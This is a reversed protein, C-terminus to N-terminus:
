CKTIYFLLWKIMSMIKCTMLEFLAFSLNSIEAAHHSAGETPHSSHSSNAPIALSPGQYPARSQTWRRLENWYCMQQVPIDLIGEEIVQRSSPSPQNSYTLDSLCTNRGKGERGKGERGKGERRKGRSMREEDRGSLEHLHELGRKGWM